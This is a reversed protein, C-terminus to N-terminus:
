KRKQQLLSSPVVPVTKPDSLIFSSVLSSPMWFSMSFKFHQVSRYWISSLIVSRCNPPNQIVMSGISAVFLFLLLDLEMCVVLKSVAFIPTFNRFLRIGFLTLVYVSMCLCVDLSIPCLRDFLYKSCIYGGQHSEERM